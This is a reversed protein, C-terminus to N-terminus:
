QCYIILVQENFNINNEDDVLYKRRIIFIQCYIDVLSIGRNVDSSDMAPLFDNGM